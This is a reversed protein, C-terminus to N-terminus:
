ASVMARHAANHCRRCLWIVDLPDSYGNHHHAELRVRGSCSQCSEPKKVDGRLVALRLKSRAATKEIEVPDALRRRLVLQGSWKNFCTKCRHKRLERGGRIEHLAFDCLPKTEGCVRCLREEAM